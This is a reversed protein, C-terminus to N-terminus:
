APYDPYSDPPREAQERIARSRRRSKCVCVLGILAMAIFYLSLIGYAILQDHHM